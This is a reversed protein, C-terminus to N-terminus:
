QRLGVMTPASLSSFLSSGARPMIRMVRWGSMHPIMSHAAACMAARPSLLDSTNKPLRSSRAPTPVCSISARLFDLGSQGRKAATVECMGNTAMAWPRLRMRQRSIPQSRGAM